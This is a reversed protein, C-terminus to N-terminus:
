ITTIYNVLYIVLSIILWSLWIWVLVIIATKLGEWWKKYKEENGAATVMIFWHYLLYILTFAWLLAIFYNVIKQIYFLMSDQAQNINEINGPDRLNTWWMIDRTGARLVDTDNENPLANNDIVNNPDTPAIRDDQQIIDIALTFNFILILIWILINKKM